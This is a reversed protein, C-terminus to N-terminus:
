FDVRGRLFVGQTTLEGNSDGARGLSFWHEFEYGLELRLFDLRSPTYSIGARFNLTGASQTKRVQTSASELNGNADFTAESFNQHITGVLFSGDAKAFFGFSPFVPFQRELQLAAHGGGGVYSSSASQALVDNAITTDYFFWAVRAGVTWKMRWRLAPEFWASNYDFDLVNLDLRTRADFDGADSTFTGNGESTVFRYGILFEGLSDPLKYGVEFRPSVTWPLDARGVNLTDTSGDPLTVTGQLHDKFVPKLVDLDLGLFFTPIESPGGYIPGWGNPGPDALGTSPAPPVATLPRPPALPPQWPAPPPPVPPPGEPPLPAVPLPSPPLPQAVAVGPLVVFLSALVLFRRNASMAM